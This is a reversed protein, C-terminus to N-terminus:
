KSLSFLINVTGFHLYLPYPVMMDGLWASSMLFLYSFYFLVAAICDRDQSRGRQHTGGSNAWIILDMYTFWTWTPPGQASFTKSCIKTFCDLKKQMIHTILPTARDKCINFLKSIVNEKSSAGMQSIPSLVYIQSCCWVCINCKCFFQYVNLSFNTHSVSWILDTLQM